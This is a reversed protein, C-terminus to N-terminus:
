TNGTTIALVHPVFTENRQDMVAHGGESTEFAGRPASELYVVSRLLDPVDRAAPTGLDAVGPRREVAAAARAPGRRPRPDRRAARGDRGRSRAAVVCLVGLVCLVCVALAVAARRRAAKTDKTTRQTRTMHEDMLVLVGAAGRGHQAVRQLVGGDRNNHQYSLKLLLNRQISYGGGVEVRTVPADWPLTATAGTVDSFGLHDFRAAAYM